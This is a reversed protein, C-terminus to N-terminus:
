GHPFDSQLKKQSMHYETLDKSIKRLFTKINCIQRTDLPLSNFIKSSAYIFSRKLFDTKPKPLYIQSVSNRLMYPNRKMQIRSSLYIPMDKVHMTKFLLIVNTKKWRLDIPDVKLRQFLENSRINNDCKLVIRLARKQLVRMKNLVSNTANSWVPSCNNYDLHSQIITFYLMKAVNENIFPRAKRLLFLNKLIKRRVHEIHTGWTLNPDLIVGLYKCRYVEKLYHGNLHFKAGSDRFLDLKKRSGIMICETKSANLILNNASLWSAVSKLDENICTEIHHPDHSSFYLCTDDAYLSLQCHKVSESIDNIFLLFLMPGLISGQPVGFEVESLPSLSGNVCTCQTRGCLYNTFWLISAEDFGYLKLKEILIGHDVTDFARKLDLAVFGTVLGKDMSSPLDETLNLLATTTSHCRRFGSQKFFLLLNQCLYDTTQKHVIREIVKSLIPLVSIPRYNARDATSGSKFIPVIKASKWEQPISGTRLSLNIIHTVSISVFPAALKVLRASIDDLGTAKNSPINNVIDLCEQETVQSFKFVSFFTTQKKIFKKFNGKFTHAKKIEKVIGTFYENFSKALAHPDNIDQNNVTM